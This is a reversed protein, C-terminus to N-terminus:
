HIYPPFQDNVKPTDQPNYYNDSTARYLRTKGSKVAVYM